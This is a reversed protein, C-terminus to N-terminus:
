FSRTEEYLESVVNREFALSVNNDEARCSLIYSELLGGTLKGPLCMPAALVSSRRGGRRGPNGYEHELSLAACIVTDSAVFKIM